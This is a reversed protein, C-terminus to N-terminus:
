QKVIDKEWYHKIKINRKDANSNDFMITIDITNKPLLYSALEPWEIISVGLPLMEELGLQLLDQKKEIRYLDYHYIDINNLKYIQLINFTPSTVNVKNDSLHNILFNTFQTKGAGLDGTLTIIDGKSINSALYAALKNLDTLTASEIISTRCM